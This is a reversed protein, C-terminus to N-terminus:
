YHILEGRVCKITIATDSDPLKCLYTPITISSEIKIILKCSENAYYVFIVCFQKGDKYKLCRNRCEAMALKGPTWEERCSHIPRKLCLSAFTGLVSCKGQSTTALGQIPREEMSLTAFHQTISRQGCDAECDEKTTFRNTSGWVRWLFVPLL